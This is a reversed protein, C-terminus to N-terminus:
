RGREGQLTMRARATWRSEPWRKDMEAILQEAEGFDVRHAAAILVRCYWFQPAHSVARTDAIADAVIAELSDWDNRKLVSRCLAYYSDGVMATETAATLAIVKRFLDDAALDDKRGMLYVALDFHAKASEPSDALAKRLAESKARDQPAQAASDAMTKLLRAKGNEHDNQIKTLVGGEQNLFAVGPYDSVEFRLVLDDRIDGDIWV